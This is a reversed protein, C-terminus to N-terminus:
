LCVSEPRVVPAPFEYWPNNNARQTKSLYFDPDPSYSHASTDPYDARNWPAPFEWSSDRDFHDLIRAPIDGEMTTVFDSTRIAWNMRLPHIDAVRCSENVIPPQTNPLPQTLAAQNPLWACHNACRFWLAPEYWITNEYLPPFSLPRVSLLVEWARQYRSALGRRNSLRVRWDTSIFAKNSHLWNLHDWAAQRYEFQFRVILLIWDMSAADFLRPDDFYVRRVRGKWMINWRQVDAVLDFDQVSIIAAAEISHM